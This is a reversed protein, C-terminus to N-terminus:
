YRFFPEVKSFAQKRGPKRNCREKAELLTRLDADAIVLRGPFCGPEPGFSEAPTLM